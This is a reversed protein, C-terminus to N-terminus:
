TLQLYLTLGGFVITPLGILTVLFWTDRHLELVPRNKPQALSVGRAKAISSGAAYVGLGALVGLTGGGFIIAALSGKIAAHSAHNWILLGLGAAVGTAAAACLLALVWGPLTLDRVDFDRM